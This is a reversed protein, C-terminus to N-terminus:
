FRGIRRTEPVKRLSRMVQALHVRDRVQVSFRLTATGDPQPDM